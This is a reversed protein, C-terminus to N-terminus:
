LQACHLTRQSWLVDPGVVLTKEPCLKIQLHAQPPRYLHRNQPTMYTHTHEETHFRGQEERPPRYTSFNLSRLLERDQSEPLRWM